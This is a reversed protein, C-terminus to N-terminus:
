DCALDGVRNAARVAIGPLFDHDRSGAGAVECGKRFPWLLLCPRIRDAMIGALRHRVQCCPACKQMHDPM